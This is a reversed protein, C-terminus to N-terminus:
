YFFMLGALEGGEPATELFDSRQIMARSMPARCIRIPLM